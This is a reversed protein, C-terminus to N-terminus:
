IIHILFTFLNSVIFVPIVWSVLGRTPISHTLKITGQHYYMDCHTLHRELILLYRVKNVKFYRSLVQFIHPNYILFMILPPYRLLGFTLAVLWTKSKKFFSFITCEYLYFLRERVLIKIPNNEQRNQSLVKKGDNIDNKAKVLWLVHINIDVNKM